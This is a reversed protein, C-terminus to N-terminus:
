PPVRVAEGIPVTCDDGGSTGQSEALKIGLVHGMAPLHLPDSDDVREAPDAASKGFSRHIQNLKGRRGGLAPGVAM